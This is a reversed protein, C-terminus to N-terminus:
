WNDEAVVNGNKYTYTIKQYGFRVEDSPGKNVGPAPNNDYTQRFLTVSANTLEITQELTEKGQSNAVWIELTVKQLVEGTSQVEFLRISSLNSNKTIMLPSHTRRGVAAGGTSIPTSGDFSYGTLEIKNIHQAPMNPDKIQGNKGGTIQMYVKVQASASTFVFLTLLLLLPLRKM